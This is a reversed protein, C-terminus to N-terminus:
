DAKLDILLNGMKDVTLVDGPHVVTTSAPEEIISPGVIKWGETLNMRRFIKCRTFGLGEFYVDREAAPGENRQKDELSMATLEPKALLGYVELRLSVIEGGSSPFSHGYRIDYAADFHNKINAKAKDDIPKDAFPVVLTFEQGEYRMEVQRKLLIDNLGFGERQIAALGQRDLDSYAEELDRADVHTLPKVYSLVYEHKVDAFLMGFASFNGPLCPIVVRKIGLEKAVSIAHCPGAGGYAVMVFERPDYGREVTMVGVAHAMHTDALKVIGHAAQILDLGLAEAVSNQIAQRAERLGLPIEGGLFYNPNLRGLVLDADTVTPRFNGRGYCAPGPVAGASEPGVKLAGTEDVHAISGGGSGVELIDVVPLQLPFGHGYEGITYGDTLTVDGKQITSVKATTGGMDFAIANDFGLSRALYSAGITGGVPGSEMTRCPQDGAAAIPMTGGNSQMILAHGHFGSQSLYSRLNDLYLSVKPGVYGNLIATSSREYERYQRLIRSSVSVFCTPAMERIIKELLAEHEPNAYSHLLCIAIAQVGHELLRRIKARADAADLPCHIAGTHLTREVIGIRLGAPILPEPTSFLLDFSNPINGRGIEIIDEFGQTTLLATKAGKREIVTNIAITSGHLFFDVSALPIHSKDTTEILGGIVDFSTSAKTATLRKTQEDFAVLDTFTGGVDTAMRIM